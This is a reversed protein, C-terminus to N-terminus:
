LKWAIQRMDTAGRGGGKGGSRCARHSKICEEGAGAPAPQNACDAPPISPVSGDTLGLTGSVASCCSAGLRGDKLLLMVGTCEALLSM